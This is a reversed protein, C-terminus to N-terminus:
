GTWEEGLKLLFGRLKKRVGLHGRWVARLKIAIAKPHWPRWCHWLTTFLIAFVVLERIHGNNINRLASSGRLWLEHRVLTSLPNELSILRLTLSSPQKRLFFPAALNALIWAQATLETRLRFRHHRALWYISPWDQGQFVEMSDYDHLHIRM